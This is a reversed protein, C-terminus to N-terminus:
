TQNRRITRNCLNIADELKDDPVGNPYLRGFLERQKETCQSLRENLLSRKFEEVEQKVTKGTM